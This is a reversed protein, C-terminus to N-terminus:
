AVERQVPHSRSADASKAVCRISRILEQANRQLDFRHEVTKRAAEGWKARLTPNKALEELADALAAADRPPVLRGNIRDDILEPIGTLRSGVAPLGSAMAEMLAVPIGERRGDSTPVSPAVVVHMTGLLAAVEPRKLAGHFRVRDTVGGREALSRLSTADPGQGVLHLRVPVGRQHLRRCAEILYAQGKVEHLTGICALQMEDAPVDRAGDPRHFVQLDTGCHIVRVKEASSSGCENVITQRNFDSIAVVFAAERVKEQLMHVDRHLDSGHATFSFPIKTLRHIVFAAAAPHSAFHAHVHDIHSAAMEQAFRVAKPFAALFGFLYRPSGWNARIGCLLTGLYQRPSKLLCKLNALLICGSLLRHFHARAVYAHAEDHVVRSAERWLPYIEVEIGQAELAKIEFLIFTETLKPFRSMIYAVRM